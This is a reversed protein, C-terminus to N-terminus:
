SDVTGVLRATGGPEGAFGRGAQYGRADQEGKRMLAEIAIGYDLTDGPIIWSSADIAEGTEQDVRRHTPGLFDEADGTVPLRPHEEIIRGDPRSFRLAGGAVREVGFGGEHVLRHHRRCLSVLNDLSTEGGNAWHRFAAAATGPACRGSCRRRCRAHKAASTSRIARTM